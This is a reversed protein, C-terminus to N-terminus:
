QDGRTLRAGVRDKLRHGIGCLAHLSYHELAVAAGCGAEARLEANQGGPCRKRVVAPVREYHVRGGVVYGSMGGATGLDGHLPECGVVQLHTMIWPHTDEARLLLHLAHTDRVRLAPRLRDARGLWASCPSGSAAMNEPEQKPNENM